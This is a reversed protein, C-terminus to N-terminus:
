ESESIVSCSLYGAPHPVFYSQATHWSRAVLVTSAAMAAFSTEHSAQWAFASWM